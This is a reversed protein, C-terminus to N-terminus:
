AEGIEILRARVADYVPGAYRAIPAGILFPAPLRRLLPGTVARRADLSLLSM